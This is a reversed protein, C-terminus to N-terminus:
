ASRDKPPLPPTGEDPTLLEQLDARLRGNEEWLDKIREHLYAREAKSSEVERALEIVKAEAAVAKAEWTTGRYTDWERTEELLTRSAKRYFLLLGTGVGGALTFLMSAWALIETQTIVGLLGTGLGGAFLVILADWAASLRHMVAIGKAEASHAHM